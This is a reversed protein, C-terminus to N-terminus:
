PARLLAFLRLRPLLFSATALLLGAEPASGAAAVAAVAVDQPTLTALVVVEDDVMDVDVDVGNSDGANDSGGGSGAAATDIIRSWVPGEVVCDDDSCCERGAGADAGAGAGIGTGTNADDGEDDVTVVDLVIDVTVADSVFVAVVFDGVAAGNAADEPTDTGEAFTGDDDEGGGAVVVAPVVVVVKLAATAVTATAVTAALAAGTTVTGGKGLGAGTGVEARTFPAAFTLFASGTFGTEFASLLEAGAEALLCISCIATTVGGGGEGEDMSPLALANLSSVFLLFLPLLSRRLVSSLFRVSSSSSISLPPSSASPFSVSKGGFFRFDALSENDEEEEVSTDSLGSSLPAFRAPRGRRCDDDDEDDGAADFWTISTTFVVDVDVGSIVVGVFADVAM